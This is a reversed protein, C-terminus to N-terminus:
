RIEKDRVCEMVDRTSRNLWEYRGFVLVKKMLDLLEMLYLMEIDHKINIHDIKLVLMCM